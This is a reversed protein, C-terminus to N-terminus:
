ETLVDLIQHIATVIEANTAAATLSQRTSRLEKLTQRDLSPLRDSITRLHENLLQVLDELTARSLSVDFVTKPM